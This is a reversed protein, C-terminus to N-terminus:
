VNGIEEKEVRKRLVEDTLFVEQEALQKNEAVLQIYHWAVWLVLGVIWMLTETGEFPYIAGIDAIEGSWNEFSGTTM